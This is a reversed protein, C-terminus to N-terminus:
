ASNKRAAYTRYAAMGGVVIAGVFAVALSRKVLQRYEKRSRGIETEPIRLHPHEAAGIVRTFLSNLTQKKVSISIPAEIKMMQCVRAADQDAMPDSGLDVKAAVLLCPIGYGTEEGHRAVETLIEKSKKWSLEDSSDYVVLVVDYAALSNKDSLIKEVGAEPIEQLILTKSGALKEFANVAYREGTTSTRKTTFPRGISSDLLASKGAGKPGLVLCHICTRDTQRKKVDISKRRTVHLASASHDGYGIYIMNALACPPDIRAMLAWESLFGNLSLEGSMTKEAADKYPSRNWVSEPATSFLEEIEEDGVAGDYNKDFTRFVGTLFDVASRTLEVSQDAAHRIPVQILNGRLDLDDNYGFKRLVTWTTEIRGKEIFLTHLFLFGILTLGRDNIGEPLKDHVVRKVGVIEAPQLPADFCKIQFNNLEADSLVGDGDQDCLTFIRKLARMCRPKLSLTEQNYLPATPHLVAKQAYFFVEPVQVQTAASCEICTEIRRFRQMVPSMVAELSMEDEDRLDLKCGAVILPVKKELQHIEPLWYSELRDLSAPEDCAYTLVVVDARNLEDFVKSRSELSSPTDIVTVPIRDPFFDAPLHTPPLVPPAREPFSETAVAAILSSKGVGRDGVVVVRVGARDAM